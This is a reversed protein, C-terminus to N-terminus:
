YTMVVNGTILAERNARKLLCANGGVDIETDALADDRITISTKVTAWSM